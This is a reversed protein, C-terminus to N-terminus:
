FGSGSVFFHFTGEVSGLCWKGSISANGPVGSSPMYNIAWLQGRAGPIDYYGTAGDLCVRAHIRGGGLAEYTTDWVSRGLEDPRLGNALAPKAAQLCCIGVAGKVATT